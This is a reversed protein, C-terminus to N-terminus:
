FLFYGWCHCVIFGISRFKLLQSISEQFMIVLAFYYETLSKELVAPRDARRLPMVM